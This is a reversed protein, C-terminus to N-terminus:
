AGHKPGQAHMSTHANEHRQQMMKAVSKPRNSLQGNQNLVMGVHRQMSMWRAHKNTQMVQMSAHKCQKNVHEYQM